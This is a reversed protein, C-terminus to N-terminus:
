ENKFIYTSFSCAGTTNNVKIEQIHVKQHRLYSYGSIQNIIERGKVNRHNLSELWAYYICAKKCLSNM